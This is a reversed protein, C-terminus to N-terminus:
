EYELSISGSKGSIPCGGLCRTANLEPPMSHDKGACFVCGGEDAAGIVREAQLNKELEIAVGAASGCVDCAFLVTAPVANEVAAYDEGKHVFGEAPTEVELADWSYSDTDFGTEV